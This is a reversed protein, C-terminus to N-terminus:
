KKKKKKPQEVDLTSQKQDSVTEKKKIGRKIILDELAIPKYTNNNRFSAMSLIGEPSYALVISCPDIIALDFISITKGGFGKGPVKIFPGSFIKAISMPSFDLLKRKMINTDENFRGPTSSGHIQFRLFYEIVISYFKFEESERKINPLLFGIVQDIFPLRTKAIAEYRKEEFLWKPSQSLYFDKGFIVPKLFEKMRKIATKQDYLHFGRMGNDIAILVFDRIAQDANIVNLTM